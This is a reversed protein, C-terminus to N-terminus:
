PRLDCAAKNFLDFGTEPPASVFEESEFVKMNVMSGSLFWNSQKIFFENDDCYIMFYNLITDVKIGDLTRPASFMLKQWAKMYYHGSHDKEMKWSQTDLYSAFSESKQIEKWKERPDDECIFNYGGAGDEKYACRAFASNSFSIILLAAIIPIKM